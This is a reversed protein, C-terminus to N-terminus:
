TWFIQTCAFQYDMSSYERIKELVVFEVFDMIQLNLGDHKSNRIFRFKLFFLSFIDFM